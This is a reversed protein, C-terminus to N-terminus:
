MMEDYITEIADAMTSASFVERAAKEGAAGLKKSLEGDDLIRQVADALAEDDKPPIGLGVGYDLLEGLPPVAALVLPVGQSMAELLVLPADMKAYLSESPMVVVDAAGVFAPMDNVHEMFRVRDGLGSAHLERKIGDRIDRSAERKIRCAFVVVVDDFANALAPIAKKVTQAATSFEYDGPFVVLPGDEPLGNAKRIAKRGESDPPDVPEICPRILRLKEEPVGADVMRLRTDESLVVVIDSFLFRDIGDFSAPASCVTQVTKVRALQKQMKGAMSTVPNPAFFYHYISTGRARLGHMMVKLNQAVGPSYAGNGSYIPETIIRPRAEGPVGSVLEHAGAPTTLVRYKYKKGRIIQSRVINKASDDWPPGIPKSIMLVTNTTRSM